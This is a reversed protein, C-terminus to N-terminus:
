SNVDKISKINKLMSYIKHCPVQPKVERRFSTMGHLNIVRLLGNDKALNSGV